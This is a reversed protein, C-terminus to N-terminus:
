LLTESQPDGEGKIKINKGKTKTIISINGCGLMHDLFVTGYSGAELPLRFKVPFREIM